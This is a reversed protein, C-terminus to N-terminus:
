TKELVDVDFERSKGWDARCCGEREMEGGEWSGRSEYEGLYGRNSIEYVLREVYNVTTDPSAVGSVCAEYGALETKEEVEDLFSPL